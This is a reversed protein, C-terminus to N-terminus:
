PPFFRSDKVFIYNTCLACCEVDHFWPFNCLLRSDTNLYNKNCKLPIFSFSFSNYNRKSPGTHILCKNRGSLPFCLFYGKCVPILSFYNV